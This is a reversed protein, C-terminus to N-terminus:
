TEQMAFGNEISLKELLTIGEIHLRVMLEKM